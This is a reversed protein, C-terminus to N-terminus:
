LGGWRRGGSYSIIGVELWLEDDWLTQTPLQYFERPPIMARLIDLLLFSFEFGLLINGKIFMVQVFM